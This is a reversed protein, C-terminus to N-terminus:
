LVNVYVQINFKTQYRLGKQYLNKRLFCFIAALHYIVLKQALTCLFIKITWILLKQLISVCHQIVRYVHTHKEPHQEQNHQGKFPVLLGLRPLLFVLFAPHQWFMAVSRKLALVGFVVVCSVGSSIWIYKM